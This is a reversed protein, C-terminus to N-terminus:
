GRTLEEHPIPTVSSTCSPWRFAQLLIVHVCKSVEALVSLKFLLLQIGTLATFLATTVTTHSKVHQGDRTAQILLEDRERQLVATVRGVVKVM